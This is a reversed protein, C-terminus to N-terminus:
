VTSDQDQYNIPISLVNCDGSKMKLMICRNPELFKHLAMVESSMFLM